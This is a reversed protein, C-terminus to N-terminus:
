GLAPRSYRGWPHPLCGLVQGTGNPMCINYEPHYAMQTQVSM